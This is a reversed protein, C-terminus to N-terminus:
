FEVVLTKKDLLGIELSGDFTMNIVTIAKLPFKRRAEEIERDLSGGKLALLAPARLMRRNTGTSPQYSRIPRRLLPRSWRVLDVLPAVARATVFDFQSTANIEKRLEEARATWISVGVLGLREVLDQIVTTKKRVSDLLVFRLDPRVIALPLGPLGGGSGLDLISADKPFDLYFLPAISHLLHIYWPSGHDSRSIVNVKSNWEILGDVLIQFLRIHSEDLLLGHKRCIRLFEVPPDAPV